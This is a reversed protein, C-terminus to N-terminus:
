SSVVLNNPLHVGSEVYAVVMGITTEDTYDMDGHTALPDRIKSRKGLVFTVVEEDYHAYAIFPEYVENTSVHFAMKILKLSEENNDKNMVQQVIQAGVQEKYKIKLNVNKKFLCTQYSRFPKLCIYLQINMLNAHNTEFENPLQDKINHKREALTM